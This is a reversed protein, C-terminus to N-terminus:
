NRNDRLEKAALYAQHAELATAYYGLHKKKGGCAIAARWKGTDMYPSVGLLGSKSGRHARHRNHQNVSHTVDRLNNITNNAKNGDIHDIQHKPWEGYTLLWAIRHALFCKYGCTIIVYGDKKLCGARKNRVNKASEATWYLEGTDPSYRLAKTIYDEISM